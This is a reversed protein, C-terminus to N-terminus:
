NLKLISHPNTIGKVSFLFCGQLERASSGGYIEQTALSCCLGVTPLPQKNRWISIFAHQRTTIWSWIQWSFFLGEWEETIFCPPQPCAFVSFSVNMLTYVGNWSLLRDWALSVSDGPAIQDHEGWRWCWMRLLCHEWRLAADQESSYVTVHLFILTEVEETM